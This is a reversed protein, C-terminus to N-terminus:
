KPPLVPLRTSTARRRDPDDPPPTKGGLRWHCLGLVPGYFLLDAVLKGALAGPWGGLFRLGLGLCLPRLCLSDVAEALGFEHFLNRAVQSFSAGGAHRRARRLDRWGLVSYFWAAEAFTGAFAALVLGGGQQQTAVAALVAAVTGVLESPGYRGRWESGQGFRGAGPPALGEPTDALEVSLQYEGVAIRDGPHLLTPAVVQSGNLLTGYRSRDVLVPGGATPVIRAHRRSVEIGDLTVECEPLRGIAVPRNGLLIAQQQHRLILRPHMSAPM